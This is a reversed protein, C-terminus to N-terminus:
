RGGKANLKEIQPVVSAMFKKIAEDGKADVAPTLFPRARMKKTGFELFRWYFPDNPNTAGAKGLKGVRAKSNGIPRVYVFVGEDGSQRAFKSARVAIARRVTGPNRFRAPAQLVPAAVKAAAQIVKGAERLSSRVAKTRISKSAADFARKLEDVGQLKVGFSDAM